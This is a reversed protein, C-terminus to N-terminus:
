GERMAAALPRFQLVYFMQLYRATEQRELHSVFKWFGYIRALTMLREAYRKWTYRQEIRRLAAASIREWVEPKERCRALFSAIKAASAAGDTPDIHFGSRGDEIIELPGGHRTAFTPLGTAMAEIVTLGFAEFLAPQVFVGRRDAVFRFLEGALPRDLRRGVWRVEGDLQHRSLIEHLRAIQEQEERDRSAAPDIHGGVILLNAESRLADSGAFWEVLGALNKIRDLRAMSFILPKDPDALVGRTSPDPERGFVLAELAGALGKLRREEASYPFYVDADAGPSVINFKPDFVDIGNVIRQLGPMTFWQYSEYQGVVEPNGGIEQFTSTIVFDAANMAILDATYQCSFHYAPENDKWYLDSFLYKTKEFAHAINCQTVGLRQSLLTAVLNGDSYNGIVLDPRGGLEATAEREVDRAFRELFPWVEFRSIWHPVIEGSKRRFPVRLIFANKCGSIKELRDHSRTGGSDPILRTVVLIKPTVDVGQQGLRDRMERELARVQDLIYVVQGGTDPLGLVNDQGFYGHPSLILIRSVMPIRALFAELAEPSPAELIDVLLSMTAAAREATDGWGPALGMRLLPAAVEAWPTEPEVTGLYALAERLAIRLAGIGPFGEHVLLTKGDISHMSVFRLLSEEAERSNKYMESALIRNLFIVGHGVSRTEKLKPIERSFPGFDVELIRGNTEAPEVLAEKFRLYEELPIEEPAVLEADFRVFWWSALSERVAFCAWPAALLVEQAKRIFRTLPAEPRVAQGEPGMALTSLGKELDTRLLIRRGTAFYGQLLLYTAGRNERVLATLPDRM